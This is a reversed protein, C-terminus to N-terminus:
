FKEKTKKKIKSWLIWFVLAAVSLLILGLGLKILAIVFTAYIIAGLIIAALVLLLTRNM